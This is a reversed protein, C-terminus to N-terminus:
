ILVLIVLEGELCHSSDDVVGEIFRSREVSSWCWHSVVHWVNWLRTSVLTFACVKTLLVKSCLKILSKLSYFSSKKYYTYIQFCVSIHYIIIIIKYLIVRYYVM